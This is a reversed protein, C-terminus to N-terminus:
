PSRSAGAGWGLPVEAKVLSGPYSPWEGQALCQDYEFMAERVERRASKLDPVKPDSDSYPFYYCSVAYPPSKEQAVILFRRAAVDQSACAQLYFAGQMDYRRRNISRGFGHAGPQANRTTKYDVVVWDFKPHPVLRDIRAKCPVGTEEHEFLISVEEMGPAGFLLEGATPHARLEAKMEAVRSNKEESVKKVETAPGLLRVPGKATEVVPGTEAKRRRPAHYYYATEGSEKACRSGSEAGCYECAWDTPDESPAADPEHTGCFWLLAPERGGPGEGEPQGRWPRSGAHSCQEGSKTLAQCRTPVAYKEAYREPRLVAEHMLTGFRMAPTESGGEGMLERAHAPTKTRLRRLVSSSARGSLGHYRGAPLGAYFGPAPFEPTPDPDLDSLDPADDM